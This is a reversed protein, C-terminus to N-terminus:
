KPCMRGTKYGCPKDVPEKYVRVPKFQKVDGNPGKAVLFTNSVDTYLQYGDVMLKLIDVVDGYMVIAEVDKVVKLM